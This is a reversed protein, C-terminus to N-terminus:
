SAGGLYSLVLGTAVANRPGEVRRINGRGCVIRYNALEEMLMEPIEFDEASGGVLVVNPIAKLDGGPAVAKLARVANTVFVKRKAERRVARIKEMPIDEEIRLLEGPTLLVVHGYYRPDFSEKSFEMAGTELRMHFLSEVKALPYKKIQEATARSQLGLETQILMSVLEGAGAQHTTRVNGAEDIIAADTSGGGM